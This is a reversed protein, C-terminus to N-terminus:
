SYLHTGTFKISYTVSRYVQMGDLPILNVGLRKKSYLGPYAGAQYAGQSTHQGLKLM